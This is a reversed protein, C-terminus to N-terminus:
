KALNDYKLYYSIILGTIHHSIITPIFEFLKLEGKLGKEVGTGIMLFYRM